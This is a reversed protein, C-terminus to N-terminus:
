IIVTFILLNRLQGLSEPLAILDNAGLKLETLSTLQGLSEPVLTFKNNRLDLHKIQWNKQIMLDFLLDLDEDSLDKRSLNLTEPYESGKKLKLKSLLNKVRSM